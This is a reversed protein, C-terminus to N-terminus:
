ASALQARSPEILEMKTLYKGRRPMKSPLKASFALVLLFVTKLPKSTKKGAGVLDWPRKVMRQCNQTCLISLFLIMYRTLLSPGVCKLFATLFWPFCHNGSNEMTKWQERFTGLSHRTKSLVQGFLASDDALCRLQRASSEKIDAPEGAEKLVYGPSCSGSRQHSPGPASRHAHPVLCHHDPVRTTPVPHM